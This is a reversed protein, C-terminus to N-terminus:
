SAPFTSWCWRADDLLPQVWLGITVAPNLHAARCAATVSAFVALGWGFTVMADSAAM